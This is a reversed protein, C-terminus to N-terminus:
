SFCVPGVDIGFEQEAGGVDVPAMDVIPLKSPKQTRYEFVTQSWESSSKQSFVPFVPQPYVQVLHDTLGPSFMPTQNM